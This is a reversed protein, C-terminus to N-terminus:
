IDLLEFIDIKESWLQVSTRTRMKDVKIITQRDSRNWHWHYLPNTINDFVQFFSAKVGHLPCFSSLIIILLDKVHICLTCFSTQIHYQFGWNEKLPKNVRAGPLKSGPISHLIFLPKTSLHASQGCFIMTGSKLFWWKSKHM